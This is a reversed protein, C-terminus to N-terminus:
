SAETIAATRESNLRQADGPNLMVAKDVYQVVVTLPTGPVEGAARPDLEGTLKAILELNRRCERIAHLATPRDKAAEAQELIRLARGNLKRMEVLVPVVVAAEDQTVNKGLSRLVEGVHGMHRALASKNLGYTGELSRYPVQRMLDETIQRLKPHECVSCKQPV